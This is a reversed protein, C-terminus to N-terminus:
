PFVTTSPLSPVSSLMNGKPLQWYNLRLKLSSNEKPEPWEPESPQLPVYVSLYCTQYRLKPNQSQNPHTCSTTSRHKERQRDTEERRELFFRYVNFFFFTGQFSNDNDFNSSFLLLFLYISCCVQGLQCKYFLGGLLLLICIQQLVCLINIMNQAM